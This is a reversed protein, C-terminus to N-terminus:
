RVAARTVRRRTRSPADAISLMSTALLREEMEEAAVLEINEAAYRQAELVAAVPLEYEKAARETSWRALPGQRHPAHGTRRPGRVALPVDQM